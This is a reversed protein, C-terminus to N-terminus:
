DGRNSLYYWYGEATLQVTADGYDSDHDHYLLGKKVLSSVVGSLQKKTTLECNEIVQDSPVIGNPVGVICEFTFHDHKRIGNMIVDNELETINPITLTFDTSDPNEVNKVICPYCLEGKLTSSFVGNFNPFTVLEGCSVCKVKQFPPYRDNNHLLYYTYGEATLQVTANSHTDDISILEKKVLSSIVDSLQTPTTDKCEEILADLWVMGNTCNDFFNSKGIGNIIVDYELKTVDPIILHFNKEDTECEVNDEICTYCLEQNFTSSHISTTGFANLEKGCIRCYKEPRITEFSNRIM